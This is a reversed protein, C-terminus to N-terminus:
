STQSESPREKDFLKCTMAGMTTEIGATPGTPEPTSSVPPPPPVRLDAEGPIPSAEPPLPQGPQVIQAREAACSSTRSSQRHEATM